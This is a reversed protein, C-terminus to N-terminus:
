LTQKAPDVVFDVFIEYFGANGSSTGNTNVIM